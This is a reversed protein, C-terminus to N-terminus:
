GIRSQAVRLIAQDAKNDALAPEGHHPAQLFPRPKDVAYVQVYDVGIEKLHDLSDEDEAWPLPKKAWQMGQMMSLSKWPASSPIM